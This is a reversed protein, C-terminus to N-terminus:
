RWLRRRQRGDGAGGGDLWKDRLHASRAQMAVSVDAASPMTTTTMMMMMMMMMLLLLLLLLSM